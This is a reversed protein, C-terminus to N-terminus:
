LDHKIDEFTAELVGKEVVLIDFIDCWLEPNSQGYDDQVMTKWLSLVSGKRLCEDHPM